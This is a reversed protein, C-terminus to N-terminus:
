SPFNDDRPGYDARCPSWSGHGVGHVDFVEGRGINVGSTSSIRAAMAAM